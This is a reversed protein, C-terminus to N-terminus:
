QLGAIPFTSKGSSFPLVSQGIFQESLPALDEASYVTSGEVFVESLVFAVGADDGGPAAPGGGTLAADGDPEPLAESSGNGPDERPSPQPVQLEERTQLQAGQAMVPTPALFALLGGALLGGALLGGALSGGALSGNVLLGLALGISRRFARNAVRAGKLLGEGFDAGGIQDVGIQGQM